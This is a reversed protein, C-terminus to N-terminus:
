NSKEKLYEIFKERIKKDAFSQIHGKTETIWFDKPNVAKESIEIGHHLPVINDYEGHLILLPVPSINKIWKVPSYYDSVLFSLPYQFTWTIIIQSAKERTIERYSSFTSEIILAKLNNKYKSNAVTYVAIAGGVSQGFVFIKEGSMSLAKELATEADIHVGEITPHGDSKGYGRYDFAFVTFEEKVLWLVSNIHTSINEANGHLFLIFGISKDKPKLVWGHLKLGDPTKFYVDEYNFKELM